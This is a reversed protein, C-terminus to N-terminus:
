IQTLQNPLNNQLIFANRASVAENITKFNKAFVDKGKVTVRARYTNCKSEKQIGVLKGSRRNNCNVYHSVFRCNEPSYGKNNDIRDIDCGEKFGSKIAWAYFAKHDMIWEKCITIGRGGYHPYSKHKPNLCRGKMDMLKQYLPHRIGRRCLGHKTVSEKQLCGCSRTRGSRLQGVPIIRHNGCDCFCEWCRKWHSDVHSFRVATLKGFKQGTLDLARGM